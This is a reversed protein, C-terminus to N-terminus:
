IKLVCPRRTYHLYEFPLSLHFPSYRVVIITFPRQWQVKVSHCFLSRLVDFIDLYYATRLNTVSMAPLSSTHVGKFCSYM